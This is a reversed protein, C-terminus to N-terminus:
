RPWRRSRRNAEAVAPRLAESLPCPELDASRATWDEGGDMARLRVVGDGWEIVRGVRPQGDANKTARDRTTNGM